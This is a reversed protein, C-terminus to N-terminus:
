DGGYLGGVFPLVVQGGYNHGSVVLDVDWIESENGFGLIIKNEKFIGLSM